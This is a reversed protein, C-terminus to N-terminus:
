NPLESNPSRRKKRENIVQRRIAAATAEEPIGAANLWSEFRSGM